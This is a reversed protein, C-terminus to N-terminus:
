AVLDIAIFAAPRVIGFGARMEGLVRVINRIFDDNVTGVTINTEERDFLIARRFDGMLATGVPVAESEVVPVGWVRDVGQPGFPGGSVYGSPTAGGWKLLDIAELDEPNVLVATPNSRGGIRVKRRAIRMVDLMTQSGSPAVQTQIGPDNLIGTFNEGSGSGAVIQDELELVIDDTLYADIMGRLQPVDSLIRRTAPVWEAITKVTDSEITFTFGGEPKTGSTGTLATAEAVPAANSIRTEERVWEVADTAIPVVTILDRVTLPRTQLTDLLGRFDPRVLDGISADNSTLLARFKPNQQLSHLRGPTLVSGRLKETASTLGVYSRFSGMEFGDSQASGKAPGGSPFKKIWAQYEASRTFLEGPTLAVDMPDGGNDEDGRGGRYLGGAGSSREQEREQERDAAAHRFRDAIGSTMEATRIQEDLTRFEEDLSRLQVTQEESPTGDIQGALSDGQAIVEDRRARMEDLTPM